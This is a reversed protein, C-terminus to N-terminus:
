YIEAQSALYEEYGGTTTRVVVDIQLGNDIMTERSPM